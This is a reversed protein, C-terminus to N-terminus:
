PTARVELEALLLWLLAELSVRSSPLHLGALRGESVHLHPPKWRSKGLPHWHYGLLKRGQADNVGYRYALTSVKWPGREPDEVQVLRYQQQVSLELRQTREGTTQLIVPDESLTLAQVDGPQAWGVVLQAPCVCSLARQLPRIFAERAEEPTKGAL